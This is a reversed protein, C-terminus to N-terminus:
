GSARAIDCACLLRPTLWEPNSQLAAQCKALLEDFQHANSLSIM